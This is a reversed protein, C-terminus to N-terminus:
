GQGQVVSKRDRSHVLAIHATLEPEKVQGFSVREPLCALSRGAFHARVHVIYDYKSDAAGREPRYCQACCEQLGAPVQQGPASSIAQRAKVNEVVHIGCCDGTCEVPHIDGASEEDYRRLTTARRFRHRLEENRIVAHPCGAQRHAIVENEDGIGILACETRECRRFANARQLNGCVHATAEANECGYSQKGGGHRSNIDACKQTACRDHTVAAGGIDKRFIGCTGVCCQLPKSVCLE